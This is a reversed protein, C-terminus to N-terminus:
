RQILQRFPAIQAATANPLFRQPHDARYIGADQPTRTQLFWLGTQGTQYTLDSSSRPAEPAPLEILVVAQAPNGKIVENVQLVGLNLKIPPANLSLETHGLLKATVILSSAQVLDADTYRAFMANATQTTPSLCAPAIFGILLLLLAIILKQM